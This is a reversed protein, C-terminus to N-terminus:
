GVIGSYIVAGYKEINLRATENIRRISSDEYVPENMFLNFHDKSEQWCNGHMVCAVCIHEAHNNCKNVTLM